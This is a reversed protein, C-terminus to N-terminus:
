GFSLPVSLVLAEIRQFLYELRDVGGLVAMLADAGEEALASGVVAARM